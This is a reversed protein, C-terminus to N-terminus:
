LLVSNISRGGDVAYSYDHEIRGDPDDGKPVSGCPITYVNKGLFSQVLERTWGLGGLMRGPKVEKSFQNRCKTVVKQDRFYNRPTM